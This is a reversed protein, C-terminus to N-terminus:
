LTSPIGQARRSRPAVLPALEVAHFAPVALVPGFAPQGVTWCTAADVLVSSPAVPLVEAGPVQIFVRRTPGLIAVAPLLSDPLDVASELFPTGSCDHSEFFVSSGVHVPADPDSRTALGPAPLVASVGLLLPLAAILLGTSRLM